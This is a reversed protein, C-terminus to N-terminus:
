PQPKKSFMIVDHEHFILHAGWRAALWKFTPPSFFCVHTPDNKYHWDPFSEGSPRLKTMIGLRGEPKLIQWLRMLVTNPHHLHELVETATIFDYQHSFVSPDHAYFHDYLKMTHGAEEFMVSLTPGPGSGFDLGHSGPSLQEQMPLFLHSLFQRYDLDDPSNQHLDYQAKEEQPSLHQDPPVFVLHCIPCWYYERLKDQHYPQASGGSDCLPCQYIALPFPM